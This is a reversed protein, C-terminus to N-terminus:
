KEKSFESLIRGRVGGYRQVAKSAVIKNFKRSKVTKGTYANFNTHIEVGFNRFYNHIMSFFRNNKEKKKQSMKCYENRFLQLLFIFHVCIQQEKARKICIKWLINFIRSLSFVCIEDIIRKKKNYIM